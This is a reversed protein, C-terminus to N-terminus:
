IRCSIFIGVVSGFVIRFCSQRVFMSGLGDFSHDFRSAYLKYGKLLSGDLGEFDWQM